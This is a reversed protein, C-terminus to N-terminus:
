CHWAHPKEGRHHEALRIIPKIRRISIADRQKVGFAIGDAGVNSVLQDQPVGARFDVFLDTDARVLSRPLLTHISSNILMADHTTHIIRSPGSLIGLEKADRNGSFRAHSRVRLAPTGCPMM